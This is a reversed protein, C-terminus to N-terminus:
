GSFGSRTEESRAQERGASSGEQAQHQHGLVERGVSHDQALRGGLTAVDPQLASMILDMQGTFDSKDPTKTSKFLECRGPKKEFSM